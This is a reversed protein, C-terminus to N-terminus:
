NSSYLLFPNSDPQKLLCPVPLPKPRSSNVGWLLISHPSYNDEETMQQQLRVGTQVQLVPVVSVSFTVLSTAVSSFSILLEFSCNAVQKTRQPLHALTQWIVLCNSKLVIESM